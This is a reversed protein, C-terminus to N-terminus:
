QLDITTQFLQKSISQHNEIVSQLGSEGIKKVLENVIDYSKRYATASDLYVFNKELQELTITKSKEKLDKRWEFGTYKKEYYLAVGETFWLSYDGHMKEDMVFHILEHIIPGNELFDDTIKSETTEDTWFQPELIHIIGGYYAGMPVTKVNLAKSLLQKDNYLLFEAKKNPTYQFDNTVLPYYTDAVRIILDIYPSNKTFYVISYKGERSYLKTDGFMQFIKRGITKKQIEYGKYLISKPVDAFFILFVFFCLFLTSKKLRIEHM